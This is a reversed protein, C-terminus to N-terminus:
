ARVYSVINGYRQFWFIRFTDGVRSNPNLWFRCWIGIRLLGTPITKYQVTNLSSLVHLLACCFWIILRFSAQVPRTLLLMTLLEFALRLNWFLFKSESRRISWASRSLSTESSPTQLPINSHIHFAALVRKWAKVWTTNKPYVAICQPYYLSSFHLLHSCWQASVQNTGGAM